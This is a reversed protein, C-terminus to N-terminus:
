RDRVHPMAQGPRTQVREQGDFVGSVWDVFFFCSVFFSFRLFVFFFFEVMSYVTYLLALAKVTGSLAARGLLRVMYVFLLVIREEGFVLGGVRLSEMKAMLEAPVRTRCFGTM